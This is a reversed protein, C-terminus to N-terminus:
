NHEAHVPPAKQPWLGHARLTRRLKRLAEFCRYGLDVLGPRFVSIELNRREQQFFHRKYEHDGKLMDFVECGEAIASEVARAILVDGPGYQGYDPDFGSQFFGFRGQYSMGYFMAIPRSDVQLYLLRLRNKAFLAHMLERHFGCFEPSSFAPKATRGSWRLLHLRALQDFAPDIDTASSVSGFSAGVQHELRRRKQNMNKRRHGSLQRRYEEFTGPLEGFVIPNSEVRQIRLGARPFHALLADALHSRVPLDTFHLLNWGQVERQMFEVLAAAARHEFGPRLWASIDDPATDGGLGVQRLKRVRWLGGCRKTTELYLPLLGVLKGGERAALICLDRGSGYHKWWLRQCEWSMFVSGEAGAAELELWEPELADFGPADRVAHVHLGTSSVFM